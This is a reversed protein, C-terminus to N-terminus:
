GLREGTIRGLEKAAGMIHYLSSARAPEAVPTGNWDFHEWWSGAVPHEFYGLLADISAALRAATERRRDEAIERDHFAVLAKIRETQPWLRARRDRPSLDANLENILRQQSADLGVGEAIEQLRAAAAGLRPGAGKEEYRLLLWAWEAQHGPEIVDEEDTLISWDTGFFEHLSGTAKEIFRTLCLEVIEAALGRWAADGSIDRWALSAELLHMHPNAKLPPRPPRHEAFGGGNVSWNERMRAIIALALAELQRDGTQAYGHALGFLVFAHDYLDFSGEGRGEAPSYRPVVKNDPTVHQQLLATLGHRVLDDAPGTWGLDAATKFAFIQRAVLRARRVDAIPEGAPTLREIFGGDRFDVGKTSWLPLAEETLWHFFRRTGERAASFESITM